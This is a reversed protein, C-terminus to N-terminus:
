ANIAALRSVFEELYHNLKAPAEIMGMHGVKDLVHIYSIPPLKSQELVDNLPAAVDETGAVFLVPVKSNKLALHRDPRTMMATYYQQCAEKTFHQAEDILGQVVQPHQEKFAAGFLTPITNKLFAHAGYEEMLEIGRQRNQKKEDNDAYASSHILGFGKVLNPYLEVFALTIYGGMSHGFIYCEEVKEHLLLAQICVAYDGLTVAQSLGELMDSKGSGPIDPVIITYKEKLHDVQTNWINSDEGFGHFLVIAEGSGEIRYAINTNFYEFSKVV